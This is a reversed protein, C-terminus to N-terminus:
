ITLSCNSFRSEILISALQSGHVNSDTFCIADNGIWLKRRGMFDIQPCLRLYERSIEMDHKTRQWLTILKRYGTEQTQTLIKKIEMNFMWYFANVMWNLPLKIKKQIWFAIQSINPNSIQNTKTLPFAIARKKTFSWNINFVSLFIVNDRGESSIFGLLNFHFLSGRLNRM